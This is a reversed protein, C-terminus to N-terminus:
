AVKASRRGSSRPAPGKPGGQSLKLQRNEEAAMAGALASMGEVAWAAYEGPWGALPSVKAAVYAAVLDQWAPVRLMGRPCMPWDRRDLVVRPSQRSLCGGEALPGPCGACARGCTSEVDASRSQALAYLGVDPPQSEPFRPEM